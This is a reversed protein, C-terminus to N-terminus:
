MFSFLLQHRFSVCSVEAIPKGDKLWYVAPAPSGRAECDLTVTQGVKGRTTHTIDTHIFDLSAVAHLQFVSLVFFPLSLKVVIM